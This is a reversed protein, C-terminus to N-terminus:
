SKPMRVEFQITYRLLAAKWDRLPITWKKSINAQTLYLLKLLADNSPFSSQNNTIKRLRM